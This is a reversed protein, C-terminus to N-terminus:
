TPTVGKIAELIRTTSDGLDVRLQALGADVADLRKEHRTLQQQMQGFGRSMEGALDHFSQDLSSLRGDIGSFRADHGTIRSVVNDVQLRLLRVERVVEQMQGSLMTLDITDSM